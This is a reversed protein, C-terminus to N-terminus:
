NPFRATPSTDGTERLSVVSHELDIVIWDFGAAAMIEAIAPHALTLWSGLTATGSGLRAKLGTPKM